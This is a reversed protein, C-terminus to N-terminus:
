RSALAVEALAPYDIYGKEEGAYFTAPAPSILPARKLHPTVQTAETLILGASARQVYYTRAIPNPVNGDLARSRTMPSMVTQNNLEIDGLRYSSFLDVSEPNQLNRFYPNGLVRAQSAM